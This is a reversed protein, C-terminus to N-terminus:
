VTSVLSKFDDNTRLGQIELRTMNEREKGQESKMFYVNQEMQQMKGEMREMIENMFLSTADGKKDVTLSNQESSQLRTELTM